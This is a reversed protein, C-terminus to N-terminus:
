HQFACGNFMFEVSGTTGLQGGGRNFYIACQCSHSQQQRHGNRRVAIGHQGYGEFTVEKYDSTDKDTAKKIAREINDEAHKGGQLKATRSAFPM